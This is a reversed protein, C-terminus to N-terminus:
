LTSVFLIYVYIYIYIKKKKLSIGQQSWLKQGPPLFIKSIDVVWRRLDGYCVL